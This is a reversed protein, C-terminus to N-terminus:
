RTLRKLDAPKDLIVDAGAMLLEQYDGFGWLVGISRLGNDFSPLRPQPTPITTFFNTPQTSGLVIEELLTINPKVRHKLM